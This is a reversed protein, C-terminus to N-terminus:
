LAYMICCAHLMCEVRSRPDKFDKFQKIGHKYTICLERLVDNITGTTSITFRESVAGDRFIIELKIVRAQNSDMDILAVNTTVRELVCCHNKLALAINSALLFCEAEAQVQGKACGQYARKLEMGGAEVAITDTALPKSRMQRTVIGAAATNKCFYKQHYYFSIDLYLNSVESYSSFTDIFTKM